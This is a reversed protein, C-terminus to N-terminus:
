LDRFDRSVRRVMLVMLVMWELLVEVVMMVKSDKLVELVRKAYTLNFLNVDILYNKLNRVVSNVNMVIM